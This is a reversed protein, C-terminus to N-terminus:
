PVVEVEGPPPISIEIKAGAKPRFNKPIQKGDATVNGTAILGQVACRTLDMELSAIWKDLRVGEAEAPFILEHQIM